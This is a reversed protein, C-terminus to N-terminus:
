RGSKGPKAGRQEGVGTDDQDPRKVRLANAMMNAKDTRTTPARMAPARMTPIRASAARQQADEQAKATATFQSAVDQTQAGWPKGAGQLMPAPGSGPVPAQVGQGRAQTGQVNKMMQGQYNKMMQQLQSAIEPDMQGNGSGGM